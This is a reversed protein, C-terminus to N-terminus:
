GRGYSGEGRWFFVLGGVLALVAWGCAVLWRTPDQPVEVMVCSRVLDLFLALPQYQMLTGLVGQGAYASVSFFVGSVYRAVRMIVPILNGLDRSGAVLRAALLAVGTCFVYLLVLAPLVAFWTWTLPEGTLLMIVLMVGMAPLLLLMETMTTAIPLAARPFRLARMLGQNRLVSRSGVTLTASIFSFLFIGVTLFAIFNDVGRRTDLLLGFVLYYAGVSLLPNLVAWAQGLANDQNRTYAMGSAYSWVFGRRQWLQRLYAGLPPRVGLPALGDRAVLRAAEADDLRRPAPLPAGPGPEQPRGPPSPM